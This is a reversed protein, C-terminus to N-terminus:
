LRATVVGAQNQYKGDRDAYSTMCPRDGKLFLFQAIGQNAYVKLPLTSCNAIEIVVQGKFGPEIPTVNVVAALRAYTSKGLCVVMVDRPIDFTEVTHGLIYSNPPIICYDGTHEVFCGPDPNLPDIMGNRVNTFIKFDRAMRVDYGYSSTGWSVTKNGHEDVRHQEASFPAVMPPNEILYEDQEKTHMPRAYFSIDEVTSWYYVSGETAPREWIHTPATNRKILTVDSLISM